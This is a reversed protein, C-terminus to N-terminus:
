VARRALFVILCLVIVVWFTVQIPRSYQIQYQSRQLQRQVAGFWGYLQKDSSDDCGDLCSQSREYCANIGRNLQQSRLPLAGTALRRDGAKWKRFVNKSWNLKPIPEMAGLLGSFSFVRPPPLYSIGDFSSQPNEEAVSIKWMDIDASASAAKRHGHLMEEKNEPSDWVASHSSNKPCGSVTEGHAGQLNGEEEDWAPITAPLTARDVSPGSLFLAFENREGEDLRVWPLTSKGEAVVSEKLSNEVTSIQNEIAVIFQRHRSRGDEASSSSGVYSSSVARAFEELQWKATGLATRLDRRLEDVDCISSTNKIEHLWTQYVSEMRDASEQVEDAASFFPDKEWRDFNSAM